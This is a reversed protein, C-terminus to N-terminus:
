PTGIRKLVLTQVLVTGSARARGLILTEVAFGPTRTLEGIWRVLAEYALPDLVLQVRGPSAETISTISPRVGARDAVAALAARPNSPDVQAQALDRLRKAEAVDAALQAAQARLLPLSERLRKQEARVPEWVLAYMLMLALAITGTGLAMRERPNRAYWVARLTTM